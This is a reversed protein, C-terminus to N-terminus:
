MEFMDVMRARSEKPGSGSRTKPGSDTFMRLACNWIVPEDHFQLRVSASQGTPQGSGSTNGSGGGTANSTPLPTGRGSTKSMTKSLSASVSSVSSNRSKWSSIEGAHGAEGEEDRVPYKWPLSAAIQRRELIKVVKKKDEDTIIVVDECVIFRYLPLVFKTKHYTKTLVKPVPNSRGEASSTIGVGRTSMYHIADPIKCAKSPLELRVESKLLVVADGLYKRTALGATSSGFGYQELAPGLNYISDFESMRREEAAKPKEREIEACIDEFGKHAANLEATIHQLKRLLLRYLELHASPLHAYEALSGLKHAKSTTCAQIWEVIYADPHRYSVLHPLTAGGYQMSPQNFEITSIRKWFNILRMTEEIGLEYQIYVRLRDLNATFCKALGDLTEDLGNIYDDLCKQLLHVMTNAHLDLLEPFHAFIKNTKAPRKKNQIYVTSVENLRQVYTKEQSVVNTLLSKIYGRDLSPLKPAEPQTAEDELYNELVEMSNRRAHVPTKLKHVSGSRILASLEKGATEQSALHTSYTSSTLSTRYSEDVAEKTPVIIDRTSLEWVDRLVNLLVMSKQVETSEIRKQTWGDPNSDPAMGDYTINNLTSAQTATSVVSNHRMNRLPNVIPATLSTLMDDDSSDDEYYTPVSPAISSISSRASTHQQPTAADKPTSQKKKRGFFFSSKKKPAAAPQVSSSTMSTMSIVSDRGSSRSSSKKASSSAAAAAAESIYGAALAYEHAFKPCRDCFNQFCPNGELDVVALQQYPLLRALHDPWTTIKNNPFRIVKLKLLSESVWDDIGTINLGDGILYQLNTCKQLWKPLRGTSAIIEAASANSALSIYTLTNFDLSPQQILPPTEDKRRPDPLQPLSAQPPLGMPSSSSSMSPSNQHHNNHATTTATAAMNLNLLSSELSAVASDQQSALAFTDLRDRQSDMTQM